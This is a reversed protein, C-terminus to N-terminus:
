LAHHGLPPHSHTALPASEPLHSSGQSLGNEHVSVRFPRGAVPEGRLPGVVEIAGGQTGAGVRSGKPLGESQIWAM